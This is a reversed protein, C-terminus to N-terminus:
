DKRHPRNGPVVSYVYYGGQMGSSRLILQHSVPSPQSVNHQDWCLTVAVFHCMKQRPHTRICKIANWSLNSRFKNGSIWFQFLMQESFTKSGCPSHLWNEYYALTHNGHFCSYSQGILSWIIMTMFYYPSKVNLFVEINRVSWFIVFSMICTLLIM